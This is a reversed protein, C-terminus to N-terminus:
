KKGKLKNLASVLDQMDPDAAIEKKSYKFDSILKLRYEEIQTELSAAEKKAESSLNNKPADKKDDKKGAATSGPCEKEKLENMRTVWGVIQEDKNMQGGSMGESKLQTKRAIIDNKIKELEDKEARSIGASEKEKKPKDKEKKSADPKDEDAAVKVTPEAAPPESKKVFFGHIPQLGKVAKCADIYEKDNKIALKAKDKEQRLKKNDKGTLAASEAELAAIESDKTEKVKTAAEIDIEVAEETKFLKLGDEAQKMAEGMGKVNDDHDAMFKCPPHGVARAQNASSQVSCVRSLFLAPSLIAVQAGM